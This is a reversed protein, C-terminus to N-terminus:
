GFPAGDKTISLRCTTLTPSAPPSLWVMSFRVVQGAALPWDRITYTNGQVAGFQGFHTFVDDVFMSITKAGTGASTQWPIAISWLGSSPIVLNRKNATSIIGLPDNDISNWVLDVGSASGAPNGTVHAQAGRADSLPQRM